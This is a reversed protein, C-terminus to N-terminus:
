ALSRNIRHNLWLVPRSSGCVLLGLSWFGFFCDQSSFPEDCQIKTTKQTELTEQYETTFAFLVMLKKNETELFAVIGFFVGNKSIETDSHSRLSAFYWLVSCTKTKQSKKFCFGLCFEHSRQNEGFFLWFCQFFWLFGFFPLSM